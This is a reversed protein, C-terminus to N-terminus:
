GPGKAKGRRPRPAPVKVKDVHDRLADAVEEPLDRFFRLGTLKEVERASVRYKAWDFGVSQDNPMVVAIVRTNKKPEAGEHPLVLIVKWLRAPVAVKLHAPGIEEAPGDKGVGGKGHPGCVIHLEHGRQALRRCYDELREWGKQNCDPAQPVINTMFFVARSDERSRSRDKAPCMHGRDFGYTAFNYGSTVHKFIPPLTDDSRFDNQRDAVNTTWTSDLHWSTWNPTGRDDNYSLAYQTKTMLFNTRVAPDTGANSPNGMLM